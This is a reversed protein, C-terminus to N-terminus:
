ANGAAPVDHLWHPDGPPHRLLLVNLWTMGGNETMTFRLRMGPPLGAHHADVTWRDAREVGLFRTIMGCPMAREQEIGHRPLRLVEALVRALADGDVEPGDQFRGEVRMMSGRDTLILTDGGQHLLSNLLGHLSVEQMDALAPPSAFETRPGIDDSM